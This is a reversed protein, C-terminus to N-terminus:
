QATDPHFAHVPSQHMRPHDALLVPIVIQMPSTSLRLYRIVDAATLPLATGGRPSELVIPLDDHSAQGQSNRDPHCKWTGM